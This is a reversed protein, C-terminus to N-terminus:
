HIFNVKSELPQRPSAATTADVDDAEYGFRIVIYARHGDPIQLTPLLNENVHPIPIAYMRAGLGLAQAALFMNQSALAVDFDISFRTQEAPGSVVILINGDTVNQMIQDIVARSKVVTFHWPQMNRASGARHGATLIALIFHEPIPRDIFQRQSYSESIFQVIDSGGPAEGRAQRQAYTDSGFIVVDSRPTSCAIIITGLTLSLAIITFITTKM